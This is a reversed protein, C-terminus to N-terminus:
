RLEFGTVYDKRGAIRITMTFVGTGLPNTDLNYIWQQTSDNWRFFPDSSLSDSNVRLTAFDIPGRTAESLGTIQPADVDSGRLVVGGCSMRLKLPRTQGANFAKGPFPVPDGAPVLKEMPSSLGDIGDYDRLGANYNCLHAIGLALPVNMSFPHGNAAGTFSLSFPHSTDGPHSAPVTVQFPVLNGAPQLAPPSCDTTSPTGAITGYSSTGSVVTIAVPNSLGDDTLDVLPAVLSASAGTVSFPGVNLVDVVFSASEGPQLLGDGSSDSLVHVSEPTLYADGISKSTDPVLRMFTGSTVKSVGDGCTGDPGPITDGCVSVATAVEKFLAGGPRCATSTGGPPITTTSPNVQCVPTDAVPPAPPGPSPCVGPVPSSPSPNPCHGDVPGSSPSSNPCVGDVPGPSPSPNPCVGDVPGPSPTPNPCVGPAPTTPSPNPCYGPGPDTPNPNPCYGPGPTTPTPNPCYGPAPTTPSPNPCYGPGPNTPNPNPCYGPGPNTPNPNPCVAPFTDCNPEYTTRDDDVCQGSRCYDGRGCKKGCAGCNDGDRQLDACQGSCFTRGEPCESVCAGGNCCTGAGCAVGCAGCNGSDSRFDVCQGNCWTQGTPCLSACEGGSCCTGDGCVNGCTGCNGNDSRFDVCQGNCWTQGTPCLSACEGGSCCTGDGCVNGCTGCNGNDSRFDVCQGNCWTQGTPCLSACEGGSCCTGDGCVNGCTGCNGNDSRFDVCQGNCWTQGAPCLSACEGASCCTGDGCVSGCTGCNANDSRFDVCQGNCWTQGTPCISACEGGSCCTGAGCAVGCTGCNLNDSRFDVCQGNCWTWGPACLSGCTGGNCCAGDGCTTGCSGCNNSDNQFDACRGNCWTQGEACLSGCAGGNCCTGDGCPSGCAGCNGSDNQLDACQSGCWTQGTACLSACGADDCCTGDACHLGCTGCNGSDNQLDACRGNCWIQGQACLSVCAGGSCCTGDGCVSGCAGCNNPDSQFDVCQGNCWTKGEACLSVCNGNTCCTGDGCVSGCSGCNDPDNLYDVCTDGCRLQHPVDPNAPCCGPPYAPTEVTVPTTSTNTLTEQVAGPQATSTVRFVEKPPSFFTILSSTLSASSVTVDSASLSRGPVAFPGRNICTGDTVPNCQADTTCSKRTICSAGRVVYYIIGGPPPTDVYQLLGTTIVTNASATVASASTSRYVTYSATGGSWSLAVDGANAGKGAALTVGDELCGLTCTGAVPDTGATQLFCIDNACSNGTYSYVTSNTTWTWKVGVGGATGATVSSTFGGPGASPWSFTFADGLASNTVVSEIKVPFTSLVNLDVKSEAGNAAQGDLDVPKTAALAPASCGAALFAALAFALPRFGRAAVRKNTFMGLGERM